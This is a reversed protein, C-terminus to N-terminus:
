GCSQTREKGELGEGKVLREPDNALSKFYASESLKFERTIGDPGTLWLSPNSVAGAQTGIRALADWDRSSPYRNIARQVPDESTVHSHWLGQVPQGTSDPLAAYGPQNSSYIM